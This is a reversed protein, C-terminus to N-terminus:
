RTLWETWRKVMIEQNAAIWALDLQVIKKQNDPSAPSEALESTALLAAASRTAPASGIDRAFDIQNQPHDFVWNLFRIANDSNPAGKFVVWPSLNLTAGNWVREIPLGEKRLFEIRTNWTLTAAVEGDRLARQIQDGGRWWLAIQPRIEDLKRFARDLDLPFLNSPKVGDALLAVILVRWPDIGSPLSRAGPFAKVDWFEAWNAPPSGKFAARDVAMLTAGYSQVVGFRVCAEQILADSKAKPVRACNEGLDQLLAAREPTAADATGAELMDWEIKGSISMSKIKAWSEATGASVSIVNIGTEATFPEFYHKRIKKEYDGGTAVFVLQGSSQARTASHHGAFILAACALATLISRTAGHSCKDDRTM